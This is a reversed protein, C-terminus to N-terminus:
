TIPIGIGTAILHALVFYCIQTHMTESSAVSGCVRFGFVIAGSQKLISGACILFFNFAHETESGWPCWLQGPFEQGDVSTTGFLDLVFTWVLKCTQWVNRIVVDFFRSDSGRSGVLQHSLLYHIALNM